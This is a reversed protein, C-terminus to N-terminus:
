VEPAVKAAQTVTGNEHLFNATTHDIECVLRLVALVSNAIEIRCRLTQAM